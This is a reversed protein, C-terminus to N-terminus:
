STEHDEMLVIKLVGVWPRFIPQEKGIQTYVGFQDYNLLTTEEWYYHKEEKPYYLQVTSGFWNTLKVERNVGEREGYAM